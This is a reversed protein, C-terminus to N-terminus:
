WPITPLGRGVFGGGSENTTGAAVVICHFASKETTLLPHFSQRSEVELVEAVLVVVAVDM